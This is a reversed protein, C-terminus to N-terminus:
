KRHFFEFNNVNFNLKHIARVKLEMCTLTDIFRGHTLEFYEEDDEDCTLFMLIGCDCKEVKLNKMEVNPFRSIFTGKSPDRLTVNKMILKSNPTSGVMEKFSNKLPEILLVDKFEVIDGSIKLSNSDLKELQSSHFKVKESVINMAPYNHFKLDCNKFLVHDYAVVNLFTNRVDEFRVQDFEM